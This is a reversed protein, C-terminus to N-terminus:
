FSHGVLNDEGSEVHVTSIAFCLKSANIRQRKSKFKSIPDLEKRIAAVYLFYDEDGVLAVESIRESLAPSRV